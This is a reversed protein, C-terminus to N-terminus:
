MADLREKILPLGVAARIAATQGVNGIGGVIGINEIGVSRTSIIKCANDGVTGVTIAYCGTLHRLHKDERSGHGYEGRIYDGGVNVGENSPIHVKIRIEAEACHRVGILPQEAASATSVSGDGIDSIIRPSKGINCGGTKIHKQCGIDDATGVARRRMERSQGIRSRWGGNARVHIHIAHHSVVRPSVPLKLFRVIGDGTGHLSIIVAAIIKVGSVACVRSVARFGNGVHPDMSRPSVGAIGAM